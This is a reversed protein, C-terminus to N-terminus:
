MWVVSKINYGMELIQNPVWNLELREIDFDLRLRLINM